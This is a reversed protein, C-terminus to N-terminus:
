HASPDAEKPSKENAKGINVGEFTQTTQQMAGGLQGWTLTVANGKHAVEWVQPASTRGKDQLFRRM